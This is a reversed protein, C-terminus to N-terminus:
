YQKKLTYNIDYKIILIKKENMFKIVTFCELKIKQIGEIQNEALNIRGSFFHAYALTELISSSEMNELSRKIQNQFTLSQLSKAVKLYNLPLTSFFSCVKRSRSFFNGFLKQM